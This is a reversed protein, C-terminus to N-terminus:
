RCRIKLNIGTFYAFILIFRIKQKERMKAEKVCSDQWTLRYRSSTQHSLLVTLYLVSAVQYDLPFIIFSWSNAAVAKAVGRNKM